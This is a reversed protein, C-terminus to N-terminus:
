EFKRLSLEKLPSATDKKESNNYSKLITFMFWKGYQGSNINM